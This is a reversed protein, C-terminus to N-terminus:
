YPNTLTNKPAKSGCWHNTPIADKLGCRQTVSDLYLKKFQPNKMKNVVDTFNSYWSNIQPVMLEQTAGIRIDWASNGFDPGPVSYPPLIKDSFANINPKIFIHKQTLQPNVLFNRNRRPEDCYPALSRYYPINYGKSVRDMLYDNWDGYYNYVSDPMSWPFVPAPQTNTASGLSGGVQYNNSTTTNLFKEKSKTCILILILVIILGILLVPGNM